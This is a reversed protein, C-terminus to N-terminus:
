MCTKLAPGLWVAHASTSRLRSYHRSTADVLIPLARETSLSRCLDRARELVNARLVRLEIISTVPWSFARLEAISEAPLHEQSFSLLEDAGRRARRMLPSLRNKRSTMAAWIPRFTSFVSM